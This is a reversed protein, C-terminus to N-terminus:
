WTDKMVTPMDKTMHTCCYFLNSLLKYIFVGASNTTYMGFPFSGCMLTVITEKCLDFTVFPQFLM